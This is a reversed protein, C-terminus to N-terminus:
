RPPHLCLDLHTGRDEEVHQRWAAEIRSPVDGTVRERDRRRHLIEFRYGLAEFLMLLEPGNM